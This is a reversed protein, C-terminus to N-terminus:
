KSLHISTKIKKLEAIRFLKSPIKINFAQLIAHLDPDDLNNFRYYDNPLCDVTWKNLAAQIRQASMGYSWGRDAQPSTTSDTIRKQLIRLVILAMTCIALHAEIHEPTQVFLPRTVLDGKMVRFQDEIRSLGHYIDIIKTDEMQVESSVIQYYGFSQRYAEVKAPDIRGILMAADTLEGTKANMYEKKLFQRIKKSQMATIRFSDPSQQLKELFALFSQNERLQRHYFHKDWYVVVKETLQIKKGQENKETRTIIRSKYRFNDSVRHYGEQDYIWDKEEKKSKLISKSVVYGNGCSLIHLLNSYTCMGRDGVFIFRGFSMNDVTHKLAPRVTQHDLTNGPFIEYAIPIGSNDMFLGMQVIPLKREEKSVGMQRIGKGVVQGSEDQIDVDPNETEYYFNTVDYYIVDTKRDFKEAIMTNMRNFLQKKHAYVFDLTDYIHYPYDEKVLPQYYNSNQRTTAIKSAPSLIRGYLMLRFYGLLNFQIKSLNKYSRIVNTIQLEELISEILCHAFLKPHGICAPSGETMTFTYTEMPMKKETYPELEPVIPVGARFSDKLRQEFDPKGDDYRAVPGINAITKKRNVREGKENTVRISEVMRIYRTQNNDFIELRM